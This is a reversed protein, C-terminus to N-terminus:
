PGFNTDNKYIDKLYNIQIVSDSRVEFKTQIGLESRGLSRRSSSLFNGFNDIGIELAEPWSLGANWPLVLNPDLRMEDYSPIKISVRVSLRDPSQIFSPQIRENLYDYLYSVPNSGAEFGMFGFLTGYGGLLKSNPTKNSLEISVPHKLLRNLIKTKKSKYVTQARLFLVKSMFRGLSDKFYTRIKKFNGAM